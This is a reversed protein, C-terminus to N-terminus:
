QTAAPRQVQSGNIRDGWKYGYRACKGDNRVTPPQPVVKAAGSALCAKVVAQIEARGKETRPNPQWDDASNKASM